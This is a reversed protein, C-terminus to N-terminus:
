KSRKEGWKDYHTRIGYGDLEASELGRKQQQGVLKMGQSSCVSSIYFVKSIFVSFLNDSQTIFFIYTRCNKSGRIGFRFLSACIRKSIVVVFLVINGTGCDQNSYRLFGLSVHRGKHSLWFRNSVWPWVNFVLKAMLSRYWGVDEEKMEHFQLYNYSTVDRVMDEVKLGGIM